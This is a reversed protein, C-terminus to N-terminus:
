PAPRRSTACRAADLDSRDPLARAALHEEEHEELIGARRREREPRGLTRGDRARLRDRRDCVSSCSSPVVLSYRWAIM